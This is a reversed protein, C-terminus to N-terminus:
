VPVLVYAALNGLKVEEVKWGTEGALKRMDAETREKGNYMSLMKLWILSKSRMLRCGSVHIDVYTTSAAGSFNALLPAPAKTPSAPDECTYTALVDLVIFKSSPGAAARIKSMITKVKHDPWDHLVMRMFYIDANKIPQAEFFSHVPLVTLM